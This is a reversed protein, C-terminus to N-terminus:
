RRDRGMKCRLVGCECNFYCLVPTRAVGGNVEVTERSVYTVMLSEKYGFARIDGLLDSKLSPGFATKKHWQRDHLEFIDITNRSTNCVLYLKNGAAVLDFGDPKVDVDDGIPSPFEVGNRDRIPGLRCRGDKNKALVISYIM